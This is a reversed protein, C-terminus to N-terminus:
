QAELAAVRDKLSTIEAIAEQLAATLLPVLKSQDIGQPDISGDANVADKEGTIAEPVVAQVEHAIFGDITQDPDAIFNFRHVQLDNLRNVAGTLPVVNEKLRYDSSTNFSTSSTGFCRISGVQTTGGQFFKFHFADTSSTNKTNVGFFDGGSENFTVNLRAEDTSNVGNIHVKGNNRIRMAETPSASNDSSTSFVLRGPMDNAGPTGDVEALISASEVFETGDNGQFSVVGMTDGSALITNGGASGSKQRALVVVSTNDAGIVALRRNADTGELQFAASQTSNFFNARATAAGVLLRGSSDCRLRETGETTVVFRGDSGTDVIEAKTNGVEIKSLSVSGTEATWKTGDYTYTVSGSTFTQGNTPSAPFDIAM